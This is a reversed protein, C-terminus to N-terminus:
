LRAGPSVARPIRPCGRPPPKWRPSRQISIAAASPSGAMPTRSPRCTAAACAARSRIRANSIPPGRARDGAPQRPQQRHDPQRQQSPMFSSTSARDRGRYRRRTGAPRGAGLQAAADPLAAIGDRLAQRAAAEDEQAAHINYLALWFRQDQPAEEVLERLATEAAAIRGTVAQVSAMLFRANLNDPNAELTERAYQGRAKTM